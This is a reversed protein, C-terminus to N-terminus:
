FSGYFYFQLLHKRKVNFRMQVMNRIGKKAESISLGSRLSHLKKLAEDTNINHRKKEIITM